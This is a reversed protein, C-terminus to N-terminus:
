STATVEQGCCEENERRDQSRYGLHYIWGRRNDEQAEECLGIGQRDQRLMWLTVLAIWEYQVDGMKLTYSLSLLMGYQAM